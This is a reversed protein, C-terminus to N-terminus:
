LLKIIVLTIDDEQTANAQFTRVADIITNQLVAASENV